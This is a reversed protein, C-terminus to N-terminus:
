SWHLRNNSSLASYTVVPAEARRRPDSSFESLSKFFPEGGSSSGHGPLQLRFAPPLEKKSSLKTIESNQQVKAASEPSNIGLKTSQNDTNTLGSADGLSASEEIQAKPHLSFKPNIWALKGQRLLMSIRNSSREQNSISVEKGGQKVTISTFNYYREGNDRYFSKIFVYSFEREHPKNDYRSYDKVIIDPNELTPKIMGLKGNRGVRSMKIYQHDSIKVEGIPTNVIGSMAFQIVWNAPTLDIKDFSVSLDRMEKVLAKSEEISLSAELKEEFSFAAKQSRISGNEQALM